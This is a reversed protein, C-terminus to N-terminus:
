LAWSKQGKPMPWSGDFRGPIPLYDLAQTAGIESTFYGTVTLGKMQLFFPKDSVTTRKVIDNKQTADLASFGKGYVEKSQADIKELGSYFKKQDAMEFCDRMVRTIFKDAGAAKAGPTGTTPIITDAVDALLAEQEASLDLSPGFNLKEGMIGAMLPASITGGLLFTIKQVAERRNM